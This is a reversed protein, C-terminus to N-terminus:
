LWDCSAPLRVEPTKHWEACRRLADALDVALGEREAPRVGEELHLARVEFIKDKRHAKADVRGVLAGRHLIPLTFYGYVRKAAPTYCEITYDFGFLQRARQRDWVLPDFPALLTTLTPQLGGRVASEALALHEPHLYAPGPLGEIEVPLLAGDRVLAGLIESLGTKKLRFYDAVWSEHAVGLCRVSRLALERRVEEMSPTRVDDWDPMVRERLDYVRQF